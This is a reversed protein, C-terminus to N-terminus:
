PKSPELSTEFNQFPRNKLAYPEKQIEDMEPGCQARRKKSLTERAAIRAHQQIPLASISTWHHVEFETRRQLFM